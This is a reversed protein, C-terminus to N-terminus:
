YGQKLFESIMDVYLKGSMNNIGEIINYTLLVTHQHNASNGLLLFSM